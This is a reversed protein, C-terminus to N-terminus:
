RRLRALLNLAVTLIVSILLMTGLPIFVTLNERRIVLDGPLRGAGTVRAVLLMLLGVAAMGAGALVLARGMGDLM